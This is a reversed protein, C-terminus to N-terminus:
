SILLFEDWSPEIDSVSSILALGIGAIGELFGTCNELKKSDNSICTKYGALGDEFKSMQITQNYWYIAAEKFDPINTIHYFRNFIHAIGATGHCLAADNVMNDSLSKRHTSFIM